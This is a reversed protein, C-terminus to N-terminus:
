NRFDSLVLDFNKKIDDIKDKTELKSKLEPKLSKQITEYDLSFYQKFAMTILQTLLLECHIKLRDIDSKFVSQDLKIRETKDYNKFDSHIPIKTPLGDYHKVCISVYNIRNTIPFLDHSKYIEIGYEKKCYKEIGLLNNEQNVDTMLFDTAKVLAKLYSEYKHFLGVYGLRITEYLNEKLEEKKIKLLHKYKSESIQKWSDVISKNSAPIYYNLFLSEFTEMDSISKVLFDFMKQGEESEQLKEFDKTNAFGIALKEILLDISNIKKPKKM